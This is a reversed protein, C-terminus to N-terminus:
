ANCHYPRHIPEGDKQYYAFSSSSAWVSHDNSLGPDNQVPSGRKTEAGVTGSGSVVSIMLAMIPAYFRSLSSYLGFEAGTIDTSDSLNTLIFPLRYGM